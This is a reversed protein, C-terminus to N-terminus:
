QLREDNAEMDENIIQSIYLDDKQRQMKTSEFYEKRAENERNNKKLYWEDSFAKEAEIFRISDFAKQSILVVQKGLNGIKLAVSLQRYSISGQLFDRAFSFYSDDARYGIIVDYNSYDISFKKILYEKADRM